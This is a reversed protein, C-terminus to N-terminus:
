EFEMPAGLCRARSFGKLFNGKSLDYVSQINGYGLDNLNIGVIYQNEKEKNKLASEFTEYLTERGDTSTIRDLYQEPHMSIDNLLNLGANFRMFVIKDKDTKEIQPNQAINRVLIWPTVKEGCAESINPTMAVATGLAIGTLVSKVLNKMNNM